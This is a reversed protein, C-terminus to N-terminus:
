IKRCSDAGYLVGLSSGTEWNVHITGTDDVCRVTGKTGPPPAQMDDMHVLEVKDGEKYTERLLKLEKERIFM